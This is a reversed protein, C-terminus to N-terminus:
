KKIYFEDRITYYTKSLYDTYNDETIGQLNGEKLVIVQVTSYLKHENMFDTVATEFEKVNNEDFTKGDIFIMTSSEVNGDFETLDDPVKNLSTKTITGLIKAEAGNLFPEINNSLYKFFDENAVINIYNDEYGSETKTITFREKLEDGDSPYAITHEDDVAGAAVYGAYCFTKGYKEDAYQLMEEMSVIAMKQTPTLKEYDTPLGEEKLINKQRENLVVQEQTSSVINSHEM